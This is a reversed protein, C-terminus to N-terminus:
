CCFGLCQENLSKVFRLLRCDVTQFLLRGESSAYDQNRVLHLVQDLHIAARAECYFSTSSPDELESALIFDDNNEGTSINLQRIPAGNKLNIM